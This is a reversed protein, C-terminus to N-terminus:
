GTKDLNMGTTPLITPLRGKKWIEYNLFGAIGITQAGMDCPLACGQYNWNSRKM